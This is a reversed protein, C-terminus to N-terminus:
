NFKVNKDKYTRTLGPTRTGYQITKNQFHMINMKNMVSYIFLSLDPSWFGDSKHTSLMHSKHKCSIARGGLPWFYFAPGIFVIFNFYDIAMQVMNLVSTSEGRQKSQTEKIKM